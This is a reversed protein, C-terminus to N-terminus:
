DLQQLATEVVKATAAEQSRAPPDHLALQSPPVM